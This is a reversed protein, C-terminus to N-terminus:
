EKEKKKIKWLPMHQKNKSRGTSNPDALLEIVQKKLGESPNSLSKKTHHNLCNEFADSAMDQSCDAIQIIFPGHALHGM